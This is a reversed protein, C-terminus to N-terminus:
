MSGNDLYPHIHLIRHNWTVWSSGKLEVLRVELAEHHVAAAVTAGGPRLVAHQKAYLYVLGFPILLGYCLGSAYGVVDVVQLEDHCLLHPLWKRFALRMRHFRSSEVVRM